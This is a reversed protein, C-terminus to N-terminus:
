GGLPTSTETHENSRRRLLVILERFSLPKHGARKNLAGIKFAVGWQHALMRWAHWVSHRPDYMATPESTVGNLELVSFEGRKLAEEDPARVDYRGLYFGEFTRSVREVAEALAPTSLHGGDLFLAGRCHTGLETLPVREGAAPVRATEGGLRELFFHALCVAREDRLLLTALDSVGDGTVAILRKDTIAFLVGQAASPLRYHFLGYEHGGIYRQAILPHAQELFVRELHPRNKVIEVGAGREGSDPKLVLPFTLGHATMFADVRALREDFPGSPILQWTAVRGSRELGALIQAKSEGLLGGGAGIGPNANTFLLPGGHRLSQWVFFPALPVYLAWSPWFEWCTLRLWRSRALRQFQWDTSLRWVVRLLWALLWLALLTIGITWMLERSTDLFHNGAFHVGAVVLPTWLVAAVLYIVILRALPVGLWGAALSTITRTGPVFRSGFLVWTGGKSLWQGARKLRAEEPLLWKLKPSLRSAAAARGIFVLALDSTFIGLGCAIITAWLAVSGKSSLLGGSVLAADESLFTGAFLSLLLGFTEPTM